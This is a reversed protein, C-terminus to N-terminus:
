IREVRKALSRDVEPMGGAEFEADPGFSVIRENLCGDVSDECPESAFRCRSCEQLRETTWM